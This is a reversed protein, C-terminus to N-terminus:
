VTKSLLTLKAFCIGCPQIDKQEAEPIQKKFEFHKLRRSMMETELDDTNQYRGVYSIKEKGTAFISLDHKM